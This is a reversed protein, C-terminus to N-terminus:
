LICMSWVAMNTANGFSLVYSSIILWFTNSSEYQENWANHISKCVRENGVFACHM